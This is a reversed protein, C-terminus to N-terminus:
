AGPPRLFGNRDPHAYREYDLSFPTITSRGDKHHILLAMPSVERYNSEPPLDPSESGGASFLSLLTAGPEAYVARLGEVVREHGRIMTSCGVRGLFRKYQARGFAFRTSVRQLSLPVHDADSPDSWAMQLRVEADNLASLDQWKDALTDERPIGAHVFLLQDFVLLNPLLEFLRMYSALLERPAFGSISAIAEAPRVPSIVRGRSEFYHEHNGRLLVVHDPASLYLRLLTRLIGDYSRSGRDIYDGLFVAIPMPHDAPARHYAEVKAFFDAQLLAAKLNAYCGHLDGVVLLEYARGPRPPVVQVHGDLFPEGGAFAGFGHAGALRGRARSRREALDAEYRRMLEMDVAAHRLFTQADTTRTQEVARLFDHDPLRAALRRPAELTIGPPAKAEPPPEAHGSKAGLLALLDERFRQEAPHMIGDARMLRDVTSLLPARNQPHLHGLLEFSRLKLKALVFDATSEGEAVSETFHARVEHEMGSLVQYFHARWRHLAGQRDASEAGFLEAARRETLEDVVDRVFDREAADFSGDIYSFAVLIFLVARMELDAAHADRSFSMM